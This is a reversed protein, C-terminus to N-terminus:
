GSSNAPFIFANFVKVRGAIKAINQDHFVCHFGFRGAKLFRNNVERIRIVTNIVQRYPSPRVALDSTGTAPGFLDALEVWFPASPFATAMMGLALERNLDSRDVLIAWNRQVLPEGSRPHQRIALVPDTAVLNRPVHLYALFRSPKHELPNTQSHLVFEEAGLDSTGSCLHFNVFCEDTALRPVHVLRLATTETVTDSHLTTVALGYHVPHQFTASFYTRFDSGSAVFGNRMFGNTLSHRFTGFQHGVLENTVHAERRVESVVDDVVHFAIDFAAYVSLADLIEPAKELATQISGIDAYLRKMQETVKVFLHEAVVVALVKIVSAAEIESNTLDDALPDCKGLQCALWISWRSGLCPDGPSLAPSLPSLLRGSKKARERKRKWEKERKKLEDKSVALIKRMVADFKQSESPLEKGNNDSM